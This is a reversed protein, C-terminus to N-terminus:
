KVQLLDHGVATLQNVLSTMGRVSGDPIGSRNKDCMSALTVVGVPITGEPLDIRIPVSLYSKWRSRPTGLNQALEDQGLYQPRGEIFARVSANNTNLDLEEFHLVSRDQLVGTSGGWLALHRLKDPDHRVWLEVKMLEGHPDHSNDNAALLERIAVLRGSLADYIHEPGLRGQQEHWANWWDRLRIGYRAPSNPALYHKVGTPLSVATLIEQCAQAIQFHFDPVLLEVGFHTTRLKLNQALRGFDAKYGTFGTSTAPVLAVRKWDPSSKGYNPRTESLARLLPPDTLSTGLVLVGTNPESFSDRLTGAVTDAVQHYDKESFALHGGLGGSQPVRGHLYVIEIRGANGDSRLNRFYRKTGAARSVLGAIDSLEPNSRLENRYHTYEEELYTDYNSTIISVQKELQILGFSLRIINSVLAGCQWGSGKYLVQQLKPILSARGEKETDHHEETREALVSALQLPTLEKRLIILEEITPDRMSQSRDSTEFLQAILDGWALGTRDITVGAGCYIVLRDCSALKVIARKTEELHFFATENRAYTM